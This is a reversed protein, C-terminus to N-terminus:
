HGSLVLCKTSLLKVGEVHISPVFFGLIALFFGGFGLYKAHDDILHTYNQGLIQGLFTFDITAAIAVGCCLWILFCYFSTLNLFKPKM